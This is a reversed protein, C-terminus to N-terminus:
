DGSLDMTLTYGIGDLRIVFVDKRKIRLIEGQCNKFPGHKVTVHQGPALKKTQLEYPINKEVIRKLTNIQWDPIPADNGQFKIYMVANNVTQIIKYRDTKNAKVFVYSKILPEQVKKKRDSWQKLRTVMPLYVPYGLENIEEEVKKECRSKTYLAYWYKEEEKEEVAM